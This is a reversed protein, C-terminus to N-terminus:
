MLCCVQTSKREYKKLSMGDAVHGQFHNWEIIQSRDANRGTLAM